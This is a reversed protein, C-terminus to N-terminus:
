PDVASDDHYTQVYLGYPRPTTNTAGIYSGLAYRRFINGLALWNTSTIYHGAPNSFPYSDWSIADPNANAIFSSYNPGNNIFFSNVYLLSNPFYNGAHAADFWAKTYGNPDEIDGQQEDGVQIAILDNQHAAENANLATAPSVYSGDSPNPSIWKGWTQGASLTPVTQGYAWMAGTMHAASLENYDIPYDAQDTDLGLIQLGNNVIIQHGKDLTAIQAHAIPTLLAVIIPICAVLCAPLNFIKM